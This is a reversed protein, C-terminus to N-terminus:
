LPSERRSHVKAGSRLLHNTLNLVFFGIISVIVLLVASQLFRSLLFAAM